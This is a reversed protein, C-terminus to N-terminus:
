EEAVLVVIQNATPDGTGAARKRHSAIVLLAVSMTTMLLIMTNNVIVIIFIVPLSHFAVPDAGVSGACFRVAGSGFRVHATSVSGSLPDKM